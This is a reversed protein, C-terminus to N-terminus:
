FADVFTIRMALIEERNRNQKTAKRVQFIM